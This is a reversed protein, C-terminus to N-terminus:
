SSFSCDETPIFSTVLLMCQKILKKLTGGSPTDATMQICLHLIWGLPSLPMLLCQLHSLSWLQHGICLAHFSSLPSLLKSLVPNLTTQSVFSSYLQDHDGLDLASFCPSLLRKHWLVFCPGLEGQFQSHKLLCYHSWFGSKVPSSWCAYHPPFSALLPDWRAPLTGEM